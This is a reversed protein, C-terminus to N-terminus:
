LQYVLEALNCSVLDSNLFDIKNKYEQVSCYLHFYVDILFHFLGTEFLCINYSEM